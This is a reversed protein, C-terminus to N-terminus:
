LEWNNTELERQSPKPLTITSARETPVGTTANSEGPPGRSIKAPPIYPSRTIASSICASDLEITLFTFDLACELFSKIERALSNEEDIM